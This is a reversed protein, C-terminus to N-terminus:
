PRSPPRPPSTPHRLSDFQVNSMVMALQINEKLRNQYLSMLPADPWGAARAHQNFDQTYNSVTGTQLIKRLAMKASKRRNHDFFSAELDKLFDTWDLPESSFIWHLYPQCWTAAYDRMFSATFVVKSANTPFQETYTLTHLAIQAVFVEAAAGRTRYFPQPKALKIPNLSHPRPTAPRQPPSTLAPTSHMWQKPPHTPVPAPHPPTTP